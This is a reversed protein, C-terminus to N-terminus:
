GHGRKLEEELGYKGILIAWIPRLLTKNEVDAQLWTRAFLYLFSGRNSDLVARAVKDLKGFSATYLVRAMALEREINQIGDLPGPIKDGGM